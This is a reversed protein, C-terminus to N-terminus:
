ELRLDYPIIFSEDHDHGEIEEEREERGGTMVRTRVRQGQFKTEEPKDLEQTRTTTAM